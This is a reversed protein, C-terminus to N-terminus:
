SKTKRIIKKKRAKGGTNYISKEQDRNMSCERGMEDEEIMRTIIPSSYLNHLEENHLLRGGSM